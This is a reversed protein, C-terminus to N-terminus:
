TALLKQKQQTFEEESLVGESVLEKLKRLEDAVSSQLAPVAADEQVTTMTTERQELDDQADPMYDKSRVFFNYLFLFAMVGLITFFLTSM